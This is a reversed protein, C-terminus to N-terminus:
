LLSVIAAVVQAACLPVVRTQVPLLPPRQHRRFEEGQAWGAGRWCISVRGRAGSIKGVWRVTGLCGRCPMVQTGPGIGSSISQLPTVEQEIQKQDRDMEAQLRRIHEPDRSVEGTANNRM